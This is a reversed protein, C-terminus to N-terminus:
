AAAAASPFPPLSPPCHWRRHASSLQERNNSDEKAATSTSGPGTASNAHCLRRVAGGSFPPQQSYSHPPTSHYRSALSSVLSYSLPLPVGAPRPTLHPLSPQPTLPLCSFCSGSMLSSLLCFQEGFRGVNSRFSDSSRFPAFLLTIRSTHTLRNGQIFYSNRCIIDTSQSFYSQM